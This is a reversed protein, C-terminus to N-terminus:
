RAAAAVGDPARYGGGLAKILGVAATLRSNLIDFESRESAQQTANAQAVNLMSATGAKYQNLTIEASQRAALVAQHQMDAEQALIRQAALNDEVDQFATLVAQRYAAVTQDYNAQAAKDQASRLGGDFLTEALAPGVSWVRNPLSIWDSLNGSRYGDSASLSLQPFWAARAVGIQANAQAVLREAAAVDPRRQLLESPVGVPILPVRPMDRRESLSFLSPSQGILVAISHELQDRQLGKDVAQVQITQLQSQAQAIDGQSAVGAAFRNQTIELQQRYAAVSDDLSRKQSDAVVLQFYAIALQAQASLRANELSALSSAEKAQGAEVSRRVAGWLDVEWSASLAANYANGVTSSGGNSGPSRSRTESASLGVTPFFGAQAESLLAASQRYQAEAQVITLNAANLQDELRNLDPDNFVQWWAGKAIQDAPRAQQWGKAEKFQSATDVAPRVYDPGVACGALALICLGGFLRKKMGSEKGNM